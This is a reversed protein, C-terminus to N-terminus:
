KLLELYKKYLTNALWKHSDLCPHDDFVGLNQRITLYNDKNLSDWSRYENGNFVMPLYYPSEKIIDYILHHSYFDEMGIFFVCKCGMEELIEFRKILNEFMMIFIDAINKNLEGRRLPDNLLNINKKISEKGDKGLWVIGPDHPADTDHQTFEIIDRVINTFQFVCYKAQYDKEYKLYEILTDMREINRHNNGGNDSKTMLGFNLFNKLIGSYRNKERFEVLEDLSSMIFSSPFYTMKNKYLNFTSPFNDKWYHFELAEGYTFSCGFTLLLNRM